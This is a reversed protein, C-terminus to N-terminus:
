VEAHVARRVTALREAERQGIGLQLVRMASEDLNGLHRQVALSDVEEDEGPLQCDVFSGFMTFSAVDSDAQVLEAMYREWDEMSLLGSRIMERLDVFEAALTPMKIEVGGFVTFFFPRHRVLGADDGAAPGRGHERRAELRQRAALLQRAVTPRYLECGGFITLFVRKEFRLQGEHGGFLTVQLM